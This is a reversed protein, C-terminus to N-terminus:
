SSKCNAFIFWLICFSAAIWATHHEVTNETVTFMIETWNESSLIVYMALFANYLTFFSFHVTEEDETEPPIEGRFLQVAFISALFTALFVFLILNLLGSVNGLLIM